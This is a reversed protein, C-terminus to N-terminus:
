RVDNPPVATCLFLAPLDLQAVVVRIL